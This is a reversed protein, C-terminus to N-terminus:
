LLRSLSSARDNRSELRRRELEADANAYGKTAGQVSGAAANSAFHM